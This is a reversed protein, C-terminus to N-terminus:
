DTIVGSLTVRISNSPTQTIQCSEFRVAIYNVQTLDQGTAEDTGNWLSIDIDGQDQTTDHDGLLNIIQRHVNRDYGPTGILSYMVPYYVAKFGLTKPLKNLAAIYSMDNVGYTGLDDATKQNLMLTITVTDPNVSVLGNRNTTLKGPTATKDINASSNIDFNVGKLRLAVGLNVRNASTVQNSRDGNADRDVALFGTDLIDLSTLFVM